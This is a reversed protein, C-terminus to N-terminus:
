LEIWEREEKIGVASVEDFIFYDDKFSDIDVWTIITHYDYWDSTTIEDEYIIKSDRWFTGPITEKVVRHSSSYIYHSKCLYIKYGAKKLSSVVTNKLKDDAFVYNNISKASNILLDEVQKLTMKSEPVIEGKSVAKQYAEDKAQQEKLKKQKTRMSNATIM